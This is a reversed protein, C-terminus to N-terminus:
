RLYGDLWDFIRTDRLSRAFPECHGNAGEYASFHVLEKQGPVLDYLQRPQGPFFQEDEPDTILIPTVIDKVEEGLRYSSVASYLDFASDGGMGYPRGRFDRRARVSPSANALLQVRRDFEDRDGERLLQRMPESLTQIWGSSVDVVGGDAVAAAFRHEFAIAWPVWYGAQSVGILAVRDSDVDPRVLLADLVPTLVAEWDPRFPIGQSFLPGPQGPGDFTMWHYGREAAAAGGELWMSSTVGDSGNNMVVLPRQEGQGAGPARFFFAPLTTGGYPISLREGGSLDVVKEWSARQQGWLDLERQSSHDTAGAFCYLAIGYYTATRRYYALLASM